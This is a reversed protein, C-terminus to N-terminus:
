DVPVAPDRREQVLVWCTCRTAVLPALARRVAGHGGEKWRVAHAVEEIDLAQKTHVVDYLEEGLELLRAFPNECLGGDDGGGHHNWSQSLSSAHVVEEEETAVAQEQEQEQKSKAM